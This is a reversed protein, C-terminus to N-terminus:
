MLIPCTNLDFILLSHYFRVFMNFMIIKFVEGFWEFDSLKHDSSEKEDLKVM